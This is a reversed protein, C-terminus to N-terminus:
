TLNSYYNKFDFALFDAESKVGNTASVDDLLCPLTAADYAYDSHFGNEVANQYAGLTIPALDSIFARVDQIGDGVNNDVWHKFGKGNSGHFYSQMISLSEEILEDVVLQNM